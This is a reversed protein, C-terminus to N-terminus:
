RFLFKNRVAVTKPAMPTARKTPAATPTTTNFGASAILATMIPIPDVLIDVKM